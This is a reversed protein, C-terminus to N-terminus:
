KDSYEPGALGKSTEVDKVLRKSQARIVNPNSYRVADRSLADNSRTRFGDM